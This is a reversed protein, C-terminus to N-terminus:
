VFLDQTAVDPYRGTYLDRLHNASRLVSTMLSMYPTQRYFTVVVM